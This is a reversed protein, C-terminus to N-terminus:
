TLMQFMDVIDDFDIRGNGNLDFDEILLNDEIWDMQHFFVEVDVFSFSGDGTLDEYFGDGDLDQPSATQGPISVMTVELTGVELGAEIESGNDDDFRHVDLTLSASGMENGSVIITALVINEEGAGVQSTIDATKLYVSSGPLSSNETLNAWAPYKIAVIEAVAPDDITVTFNYGSLGEPLADATIQIETTQDKIVEAAVPVFSLIIDEQPGPAPYNEIEAILPAYDIDTTSGPISYSTDGVGDGDSDSGAYDDFFNGLYGTYTTGNYIYELQDTSNWYTIPLTGYYTVGGTNGDFTNLFIKNGDGSDRFYITGGNSCIKNRTITNNTAAAKWLRIADGTNNQIINDAILCGTAERITIARGADNNEFTNGTIISFVATGRVYLPSTSATCNTFTNNIIKCSSGELNLDYNPTWNLFVNNEFTTNNYVIDTSATMGDFVCNRITMDISPADTGEYQNIGRSSSVVTIGEVICGTANAWSASAPMCIDDSSVTVVDAGEGIVSIYPYYFPISEEYTGNYVYVVDGPSTAVAMAASITTFDYGGDDDVYYTTASSPEPAPYNEYGAMLPAYDTGLGEPITYATDGIGDIPSNDSGTYAAGWFNGLYGTYTEGNYTYSVPETSNWYTLAPAPTGSTTTTAYNDIFNNGYITSTGVANYFEIGCWGNSIFTNYAITTNDGEYM